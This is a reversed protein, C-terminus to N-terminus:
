DPKSGSSASFQYKHFGIIALFNTRLLPPSPNYNTIAHFSLYTIPLPSLLSLYFTYFVSPDTAENQRTKGRKAENQKTKSRKAENQKTKSRKAENQKTKSRKAEHQKTNSRKAKNIANNL